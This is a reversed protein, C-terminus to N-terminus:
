DKIGKHLQLPRFEVQRYRRWRWTRWVKGSNSEVSPLQSLNWVGLTRGPMVGDDPISLDPPRFHFPAKHLNLMRFDGSWIDANFDTDADTTVILTSAGSARVNRILASIDKFSLHFLVERCLVTDARPLPDTTADLASFIRGPRGYIANNEDIVHQVCDVGIYNCNLTLERMWNFDGCGIDLLTKTNLHALLSQLHLRVSKTKDLESGLGSLSGQVRDNLWVRNQYIASFRNALSQQRLHEVNRRTAARLALCVGNLGSKIIAHRTMEVINNKLRM